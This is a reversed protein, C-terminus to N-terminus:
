WYAPFLKPTSTILCQPTFTIQPISIALITWMAAVEAVFLVVIFALVARDRNYM